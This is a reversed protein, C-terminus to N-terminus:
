RFKNPIVTETVGTTIGNINAVPTEEFIRKLLM